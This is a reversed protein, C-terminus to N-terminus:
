WWRVRQRIVARGKWATRGALTLVLSRMAVAVFLLTTLPYLLTLYLPLRFRWYFLGWLILSEVVAVGALGPSLASVGLGALRAGCVALPVWFAGWTWLWVFLFPLLRHGFVAFLNKSFGEVM